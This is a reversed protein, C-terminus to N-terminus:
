GGIITNEGDTEILETSIGLRDLIERYRLCDASLAMLFGHLNYDSKEKDFNRQAYERMQEIEYISRCFLYLDRSSYSKIVGQEIVAQHLDFEGSSLAKKLESMVRLTQVHPVPHAENKEAWKILAQKDLINEM